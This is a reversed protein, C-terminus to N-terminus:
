WFQVSTDLFLGQGQFRRSSQQCGPHVYVKRCAVDEKNSDTLMTQDKNGLVSGVTLLLETGYGHRAALMQRLRQAEEPDFATMMAICEAADSSLGPSNVLMSHLAASFTIPVHIGELLCKALIRGCAQYQQLTADSPQQQARPLYSRLLKAPQDCQQFLAIPSADDKLQKLFIDLVEQLPKRVANPGWQVHFVKHLPLQKDAFARLMDPMVTQESQVQILHAPSRNTSQRISNLHATLVRFKRDLKDTNAAFRDSTFFPSLLINDMSPRSSADKTLLQEVLDWAGSFWADDSPLHETSLTQPEQLRSPQHAIRNGVWAYQRGSILELLM